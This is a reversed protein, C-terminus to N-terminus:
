TDDKNNLPPTKPASKHHDNREGQQITKLAEIAGYWNFPKNPNAKKWNDHWTLLEDLKNLVKQQTYAEIRAKVLRDQQLCIDRLRGLADNLPDSM